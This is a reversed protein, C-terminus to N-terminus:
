RDVCGVLYATPGAEESNNNSESLKLDTLLAADGISVVYMPQM